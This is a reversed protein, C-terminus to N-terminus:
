NKIKINLTEQNANELATLVTNFEEETIEAEEILFTKYYVDKFFEKLSKQDRLDLKLNEDRKFSLRKYDISKGQANLKIFMNKVEQSLGKDFINTVSEIDLQNSDKNEIM